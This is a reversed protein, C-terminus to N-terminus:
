SGTTEIERDTGTVVEPVPPVTALEPHHGRVARFTWVKNVLFNIPMTVVITLLQAWYERSHIGKTENFFPDPLYVASGPHTFATLIFLGVAAAVSGVALFPWFEHWWTSHRSSKFTWSRNLQFNWLNAVLFAVIWVVHRFRVHFDTGPIPWVPDNGHQTGGHLKHMVVAVALNVVVGSGGVIGFRVFQRLTRWLRSSM